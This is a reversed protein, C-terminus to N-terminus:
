GAFFMGPLFCREGSAPQRGFAVSAAPGITPRSVRYGGHPLLRLNNLCIAFRNSAFSKVFVASFSIDPLSENDDGVVRHHGGQSVPHDVQLVTLDLTLFPM